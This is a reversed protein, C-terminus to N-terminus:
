VQRPFYDCIGFQMCEVQDDTLERGISLMDLWNGLLNQIKHKISTGYTMVLYNLFIDLIVQLCSDLTKIGLIYIM